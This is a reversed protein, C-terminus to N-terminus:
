PLLEDLSREGVQPETDIRTYKDIHAAGIWPAWSAWFEQAQWDDDPLETGVLHRREAAIEWLGIGPQDFGTEDRYTLAAKLIAVDGLIAALVTEALAWGAQAAEDRGDAMRALIFTRIRLIAESQPKAEIGEAVLYVGPLRILWKGTQADSLDKEHVSVVAVQPVHAAIRDRLAQLVSLASM